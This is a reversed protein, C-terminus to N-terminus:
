RQEPGPVRGGASQARGPGADNGPEGPPYFECGAESDGRGAFSADQHETRRGPSVAGSGTAPERGVLRKVVDARVMCGAALWPCQLGLIRDPPPSSVPAYAYGETSVHVQDFYILEADSQACVDLWSGANDNVADGASLMLLWAGEGGQAREVAARLDSVVMTDSDAPDIDPGDCVIVVDAPNLHRRLSELTNELWRYNSEDVMVVASLSVKKRALVAPAPPAAVPGLQDTRHLSESSIDLATAEAPAPLPEVAAKTQNLLRRYEVLYDQTMDATTRREKKQIRERMERLARRGVGSVLKELRELWPQFEYANLLWGDMGDEIREAMAGSDAAVVPVGCAWAESLILSFSEEFRSPILVVDVDRLIEPMQAPWYKGLLRV